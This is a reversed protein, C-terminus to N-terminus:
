KRLGSWSPDSAPGGSTVVRRNSGTVDISLLRAQGRAGPSESYYMLVRGNPSFTPSEVNFQCDLLRENGGDPSMVGICFRGGQVKTFAILDGKPSWVPAAYSGGGFSIRTAGGGGSSM